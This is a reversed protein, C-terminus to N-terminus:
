IENIKGRFEDINISYLKGDYKKVAIPFVYLKKGISDYIPYIRGFRCLGGPWNDKECKLYEKYSGDALGVFMRPYKDKIGQGLKRSLLYKIMDIRSRSAPEISEVSTCFINLGDASCGVTCSGPLEAIKQVTQDVLNLRTIYNQRSPIDTTYVLSEGSPFAICCRYDQNGVALPEVCKFNDTARWIGSEGDEDGTLIYACGNERDAIISHIHRVAGAPFEYAKQWADGIKQKSYVCVEERKPNSFYEGYAICDAFGEVGVIPMIRDTHIYGKRYQERQILEGNDLSYTELAHRRAVVICGDFCIACQPESRTIREIVRNIEKIRAKISRPFEVFLTFKGNCLFYLKHKKYVLLGKPTVCLPKYRKGEFTFGNDVLYDSM